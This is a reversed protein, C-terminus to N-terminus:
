ILLFLLLTLQFLLSIFHLSQMGAESLCRAFQTVNRTSILKSYM